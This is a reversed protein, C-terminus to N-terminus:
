KKLFTRMEQLSTTMEEGACSMEQFSPTMEEVERSMEQGSARGDASNTLM